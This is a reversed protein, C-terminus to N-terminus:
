EHDYHCELQSVSFIVILDIVDDDTMSSENDSYEYYETVSVRRRAIFELEDRDLKLAKIAERIIV